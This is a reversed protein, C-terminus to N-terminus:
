GRDATPKLWLTVSEPQMTESVVNVLENMVIDLDTEDRVTQAFEQLVRQADYKRRYFRRDIVGQVRRRLPVFLAAIALTSLVTVIENQQEGTIRVFIQQLVVVSGFYVLLLLASLTGYILTRRIILDIDWLHSRLIAMMISLPILLICGYLATGGILDVLVSTPQGTPSTLSVLLIMFGLLGATAGFVFWKTQQRQLSDSVRRYRYIQAFLFSALEILLAARGLLSDSFAASFVNAFERAAVFPILWRTWRPVFRGDPFLYLLIGILTSGLGSLVLLPAGFASYQQALLNLPDSFSIGFLVLALSVYIGFWDNSKRWFIIASVAFFVLFFITNLALTYAIYFNLSIGLQQLEQMRAATIQGYQCTDTCATQLAQVQLPLSLAYLGLVIAVVILWLARAILLRHGHLRTDTVPQPNPNSM